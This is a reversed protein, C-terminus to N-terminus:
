GGVWGSVRGYLIVCEHYMATDQVRHLLVSARYHTSDVLFAKLRRRCVCYMVPLALVTM